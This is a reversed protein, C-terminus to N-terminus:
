MELVGIGYGAQNPNEVFEWNRYKMRIERWFRDVGCTKDLSNPCIDHFAVLGGPRAMPSYMEFDMKVGEYRHDGDIFLFDIGKSPLISKLDDRTASQHSDMRLLHLSQAPQAFRHYVLTRWNPYGGGHTGGPLDISVVTAKPDAVACWIALTGGMRTGIEVITQPKRQHVLTALQLIESRIQTPAILKGDPGLTFDVAAEPSAGHPMRLAFFRVGRSIDRLYTLIKRPLAMFGEQRITLLANRFEYTM